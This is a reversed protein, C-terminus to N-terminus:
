VRIDLLVNRIQEAAQPSLGGANAAESVKAQAAGLQTQLKDRIQLVWLRHQMQARALSAISRTVAALAKPEIGELGAEDLEVLINFDIQQILRILADNMAGDDDPAAGVIARAQETAMKVAELKRDLRKSRRGRTAKRIEYGKARLWQSLDGSNGLGGEVIKRDLEDRVETPLNDGKPQLAM